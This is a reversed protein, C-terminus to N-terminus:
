SIRTNIDAVVDAVDSMVFNMDSTPISSTSGDKMTLTIDLAGEVSAINRLPFTETKGNDNYSVAEASIEVFDNRNKFGSRIANAGPLIGTLVLYALGFTHESGTITGEAERQGLIWYLYASGSFALIMTLYMPWEAPNYIISGSQEKRSKAKSGIIGAIILSAVTIGGAALLHWMGFVSWVEIFLWITAGIAALAIIGGIIMLAKM